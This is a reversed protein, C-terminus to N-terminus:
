FNSLIVKQTFDTESCMSDYDLICWFFNVFLQGYAFTFIKVWKKEISYSKEPKFDMESCM